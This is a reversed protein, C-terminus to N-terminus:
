ISAEPPKSEYKSTNYIITLKYRYCQYISLPVTAHHMNLESIHTDRM